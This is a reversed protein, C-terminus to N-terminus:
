KDSIMRQSALHKLPVFAFIMLEVIDLIVTYTFIQM